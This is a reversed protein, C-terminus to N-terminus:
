KEETKPDRLEMIRSMVLRSAARYESGRGEQIGLEEPEILKGYAVIARHFLRPRKSGVPTICVPLIPVHHQYALMVVGAKPQLFEGTRSRTGEIFIGMIGGNELVESAHDIAGVDGRGRQVPICGLSRLLWALAKNQFLEARPSFSSRVSRLAPWVFRIPFASTIPASSSIGIRRSM